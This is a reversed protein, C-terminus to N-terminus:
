ERENDRGETERAGLWGETAKIEDKGREQGEEKGKRGERGKGRVCM